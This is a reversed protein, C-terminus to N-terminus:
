NRPPATPTRAGARRYANLARYPNLTERKYIKAYFDQKVLRIKTFRSKGKRFAADQTALTERINPAVGNRSAYHVLATDSAPVGQPTLRAPNGGFAAVGDALPNQDTLNTAGPTPTPLQSYNEPQQLPKSPLIGFEDPGAQSTTLDRLGTGQRGDTACAALGAVSIVMLIAISTRM